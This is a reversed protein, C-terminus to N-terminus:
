DDLWSIAPQELVKQVNEPKTKPINQQVILSKRFREKLVKDTAVYKGQEQLKQRVRRVTEPMALSWFREQQALSLNMGNRQMYELFLVRDSNRASPMEKLIEEVEDSVRM